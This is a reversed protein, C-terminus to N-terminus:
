LFNKMLNNTQHVNVQLYNQSLYLQNNLHYMLLMVLLFNLHHEIKAHMLLNEYLRIELKQELFWFHVM